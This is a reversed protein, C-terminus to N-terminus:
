GARPDALGCLRFSLARLRAQARADRAQPDPEAEKLGNFYLGSRGAMDAGAVLHHIAELGEEVTSQVPMGSERVMSTNMLTAPHLSNVTIGTGELEAAMDVTAIIQALKSQAYARRPEYGKELMVDDFDIPTQALSAVNVIRAGPAAARLLPLLLRTLLFGALYNVAFRLEVGDASEQRGTGPTGTFIGANSVLVDLRDHAASVAAALERVGALAAFDAQYFRAQGGGARIEELVAEGRQRNRGHVLVLAGEGALRLALARGVGDTAGTVLVTRGKMAM